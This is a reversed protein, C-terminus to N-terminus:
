FSRPTGDVHLGLNNLILFYYFSLRLLRVETLFENIREISVKAVILNGITRLILECQTRFNDFITISGFVISAKLDRKM